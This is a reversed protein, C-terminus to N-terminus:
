YSLRDHIRKGLDQQGDIEGFAGGQGYVVGPVEGKVEAGFEDEGVDQWGQVGFEAHSIVPDM